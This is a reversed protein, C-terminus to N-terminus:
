RGFTYGVTATLRTHAEWGLRAEPAVYWRDGLAIRVGVGGTAAFENVTFDRFFEDRHRMLGIGAVLYPMARHPASGSPRLVDFWVNGTVFLDRDEGPGIMYVVEPGASVRPSVAVRAAGGFVVHDVPDEDLFAAHGVTGELSPSRREVQASPASAAAVLLFAAVLVRQLM